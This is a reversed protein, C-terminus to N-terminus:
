FCLGAAPYLTAVNGAGDVAHLEVATYIDFFWGGGLDFGITTGYGHATEEPSGNHNYTAWIESSESVTFSVTHTTGCNVYDIDSFM